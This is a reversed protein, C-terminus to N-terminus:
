VAAELVIVNDMTMLVVGPAGAKTYASKLGSRLSAEWSCPPRHASMWALDIRREEDQM